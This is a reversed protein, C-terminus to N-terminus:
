EVRERPLSELEGREPYSRNGLRRSPLSGAGSWRCLANSSVGLLEAAEKQSIM